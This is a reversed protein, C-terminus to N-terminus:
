QLTSGQDESAFLTMEDRKGINNELCLKESGAEAVHAM